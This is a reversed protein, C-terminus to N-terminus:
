TGSADRCVNIYKRERCLLGDEDIFYGENEQVYRSLEGYDELQGELVDAVQPLSYVERVKKISEETASSEYSM